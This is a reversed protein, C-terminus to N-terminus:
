RYVPLLHVDVTEGEEYMRAEEGLRILCNATAFSRLRFSEQGQLPIVQGGAYSGKLFQTLTNKKNVTTGLTARVRTLKRETGSLRQLVMWVYEYYCTLVSSPNGPLGFIVQQEKTGFYLPKGPRQRLKHFKRTVGCRTAAQVVFDYDGVSVGGTLLIVHHVKLCEHITASLKELNDEVTYVMVDHMGTESLAARLMSSNSEYIQGPKLSEGPKQLENGTVIIAISPRPHVNVERIGVGSLFGIGAPTLLTGAPLALEGQRIEEGQQRVNGGPQLGEDAIYLLDGQQRTKEQMVVTDTGEPVRAGTFIRVAKGTEARISGSDGAPVEGKVEMAEGKTRSNFAFAYGDMSSQNFPPIDCTAYTDEALVCGVARDVDVQVGPLSTVNDELINLAEEVGIM